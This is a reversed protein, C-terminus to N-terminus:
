CCAAAPPRERGCSAAGPFDKRRESRDPDASRFAVRDLIM